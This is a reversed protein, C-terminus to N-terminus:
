KAKNQTKTKTATKLNAKPSSVATKKEQTKETQTPPPEKDFDDINRKFPAITYQNLKVSVSPFKIHYFYYESDKEKVIALPIQQGSNLTIDLFISPEKTTKKNEILEEAISQFLSNFHTEAIATTVQYEEKKTKLYWNTDKKFVFFDVKKGNTDTWSYHVQQVQSDAFDFIRANKWYFHDTPVSFTLRGCCRYTINKDTQRWYSSNNDISSLRGVVYNAYLNGDKDFLKIFRGATSDVEYEMFKKPSKSHIQNFNLKASAEFFNFIIGSDAPFQLDDVLWQSDKKAISTTKGKFTYEIRSTNQDSIKSSYLDDRQLFKNSRKQLQFFASFCVIVIALTILKKKM